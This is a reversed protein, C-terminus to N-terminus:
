GVKVTAFCHFQGYRFTPIVQHFGAQELMWQTQVSDIPWMSGSLAKTKADIEEQTYGNDLRFQNYLSEMTKIISRHHDSQPRIYSEKEGWLLLAGPRMVQAIRTIFLGREKLPVFQAVYHCAVIDCKGAMDLMVDLGFPKQIVKVRDYNRYRDIMHECMDPSADLLKVHYDQGMMEFRNLLLSAFEGHSAGIDLMEVHRKDYHDKVFQVVIDAHTRHMEEYYPISRRAMNPFISAVQDDFEFKEPNAPFHVPETM